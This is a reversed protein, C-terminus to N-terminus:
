TSKPKATKNMPEDHGDSSYHSYKEKEDDSVEIGLVACLQERREAGMQKRRRVDMHSTLKAKATKDMSDVHGDSSQHNRNENKDDSGEIRLM